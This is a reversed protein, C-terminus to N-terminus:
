RKVPWSLLPADGKVYLPHRPHGAATAGLCMLDMDMAAATLRISKVESEYGPVRSAVEGWAAVLVQGSAVWRRRMHTSAIGGTIDVGRAAAAILDKPDTARYSWLNVVALEGCGERLAFTKCRRITPDDAMADATSPNCMVFVMRRDTQDTLRRWLWYRHLGDLSLQADSSDNFLPATM